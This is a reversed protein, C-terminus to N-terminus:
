RGGTCGSDPLPLPIAVRLIASGPRHALSNGARRISGSCCGDPARKTVWLRRRSSHAAHKHRWHHGGERDDPAPPGARWAARRRAPSHAPSRRAPASRRSWRGARKERRNFRASHPSRGGKRPVLMAVQAQALVRRALSRGLRLGQENEHRWHIGGYLRSLAAEEAWDDLELAHRPFFAALVSAAAGSVTAHGSVYGPFSPTLLYPLFDPDRRERIVNVPRVTWYTFKTEWCAVLADAIAVNLTALVRVAEASGLGNQRILEVAKRNWVGPPTLSGRDLNWDDAIRKQADSLMRAVRLLEDVENWYAASDYPLPPPPRLDDAATPLWRRWQGALPEVPQYLNLPPAARWTAPTPPPRQTVEWVADAGDDLARRIAANATARAVTEAHRFHPPLMGAPGTVLPMLAAIAMAQLQDPPERPFFHALVTASAVHLAVLQTRPEGGAQALAALADHGAAHVHALMRAARLPNLQYKVVLALAVDNWYVAVADVPAVARAPLRARRQSGAFAVDVLRQGGTADDDALPTNAPSADLWRPWSAPPLTADALLIRPAVACVAVLLWGTCLWRVRAPIGGALCASGDRLTRRPAPKDAM